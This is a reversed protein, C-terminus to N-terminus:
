KSSELLKNDLRGGFTGNINYLKWNELGLGPAKRLLHHLLLFAKFIAIYENTIFAIAKLTFALIGPVSYIGLM